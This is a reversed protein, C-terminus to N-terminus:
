VTGRPRPPPHSAPPRFRNTRTPGPLKSRKTAAPTAAPPLVTATIARDERLYTAAAAAVEAPAVARIAADYGTWRQWGLGYAEHYAMANAVAARRQMAIQHSGILYRQAREVEAATVGERRLRALEDRVGAVAAALKEPACSLYIAVFGPDIGEVSHASVRYVLARRDRLEAFLRGSQGGLIAVLVELAFRDAADVTAGPFGIVLHAQTRDLYRYVERAQESREGLPIAAIVPEGPPADPRVVGGFRQSVLDIVEDLEVDGVIALTMASAPYRARYFAALEARSLRGVADATGLVDRAYPHAGYLAESFLRFAVQGPSGSQALQDDLLLRRERVLEASPLTPELICDALLAFGAQWTSALWEAAVGFSNRGTVGALSGGLRDIQDAVAQADRAKCGRTLMRALLSSAGAHDADEIRQGGRWVARIAVIPVSPDRRVLLVLGSALVVRKEIPAAPQSTPALAQRVRAEAQKAWATRRPTPRAAVPLIAAVSTNDPRLYRRMVHAIDHRRVARIRDLYVHGFQPDGAVTAHWGLSRARGQATELQRVFASEVSIRAKELEGSSLEECLSVSRDILAAISRPADGPRATASLVLLGPDRLAHLNAYASTVLQDRDRLVRPLRASESQGLLIAAVDLPAVDPHRMAPVHFGIALYAESVDRHACAARPGHQPPEVWARRVPRGSPMTRFRREVSRQVRAPDVDGAVVLTLNDAVYYRRFFEVIEREGIRAVSEATGIVPRRYPHTVFATAFLSQAVSRAPDDGGQRIEELIVERERALEEPDVRPEVLADGLAHIAADLHDRGLVAHYVTHDLATWANIEGGGHEIARVLEGLEYGASGKFLMHEVIHAVGAEQAVEDASGVGVWAQVAAVPVPHGSAVHLTLGNEFRHTHVDHVTAM